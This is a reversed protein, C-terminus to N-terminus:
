KKQDKASPKTKSIAPFLTNFLYGVFFPFFAYYPILYRHETHFLVVSCGAGIVGFFLFFLAFYKKRILAILMGLYALLLFIGIYIHRAVFDFIIM